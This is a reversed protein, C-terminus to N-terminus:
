KVGGRPGFHVPAQIFKYQATIDNHFLNKHPSKVFAARKDM